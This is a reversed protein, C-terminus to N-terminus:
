DKFIDVKSFEKRMNIIDWPMYEAISFGVLEAQKSIDVIIRVIDKLEMSGIAYDPTPLNPENCLLSRFLKPTLVDLDLHILAHKFGNEKMWNIIADSNEKLENPTAYKIKKEQIYKEEHPLLKDKILGGYM